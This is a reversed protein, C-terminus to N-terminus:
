EIHFKGASVMVPADGGNVLKVLFEVDTDATLVFSAAPVSIWCRTGQTRNALTVAYATATVITAAHWTAGNDISTQVGTATLHWGTPGTIPLYIPETSDHRM